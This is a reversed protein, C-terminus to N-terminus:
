LPLRPEGPYTVQEGEVIAFPLLTHPKAQGPGLIHEVRMGRAVLADATLQRHCRWPVAEACMLCITETETQRAMLDLAGRFEASVMHDAYARFALNRWALNISDPGPTRRGGLAPVHEYRIDAASLSAALAEAGFHPFRRSGPYARIDALLSVGRERLLSILEDITRTSHGITDIPGGESKSPFEL